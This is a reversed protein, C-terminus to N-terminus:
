NAFNECRPQHFSREENLARGCTANIIAVFNNTIVGQEKMQLTRAAVPPIKLGSIM